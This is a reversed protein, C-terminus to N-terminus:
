SQSCEGNSPLGDLMYRIMAEAQEADFLNTGIPEHKAPHATHENYEAKFSIGADPHFNAPLRWGLFRNVMHKIQEDTITDMIEEINRLRNRLEDRQDCIAHVDLLHEPLDHINLTEQVPILELTEEILTVIHHFGGLEESAKHLLLNLATRLREPNPPSRGTEPAGGIANAILERCEALEKQLKAIQENLERSVCSPCPQEEYEGTGECLTCDAEVEENSTLIRDNM